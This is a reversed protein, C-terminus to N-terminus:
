GKCGGAGQTRAGLESGRLRQLFTEERALLFHHLDPSADLVELSPNLSEKQGKRYGAFGLHPVHSLAKM